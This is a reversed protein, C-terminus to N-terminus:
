EKERKSLKSVADLMTNLTRQKLFWPQEQVCALDKSILKKKDYQSSVSRWKMGFIIKIM